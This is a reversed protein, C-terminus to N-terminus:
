RIAYINNKLSTHLYINTHGRAHHLTLNEKRHSFHPLILQNNFTHITHSIIYKFASFNANEFKLKCRTVWFYWLLICIILKKLKFILDKRNFYLFHKCLNEWCGYTKKDIAFLKSFWTFAKISWTSHFFLHDVTENAYAM